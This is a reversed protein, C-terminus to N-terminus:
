GDDMAGAGAGAKTGARPGPPIGGQRTMMMKM